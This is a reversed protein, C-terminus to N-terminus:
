VYEHHIHRITYILYQMKFGIMNALDFVYLCYATCYSDNKQNQYESYSGGNFQKTINVPPANQNLGSASRKFKVWHTGKDPHLNVIGATTTFKDERMYVGFSDHIHKDLEIPIENIKVPKKLM